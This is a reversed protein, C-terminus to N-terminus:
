VRARLGWYLGLVALVIAGVVIGGTVTSNKQETSITRGSRGYMAALQKIDGRSAVGWTGVQDPRANQLRLREVGQATPEADLTRLSAEATQGGSSAIM